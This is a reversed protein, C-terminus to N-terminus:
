WNTKLFPNNSNFSSNNQQNDKLFQQQALLEQIKQEPNEENLFTDFDMDEIEIIEEVDQSNLLEHIESYEQFLAEKQTAEINAQKLIREAEQIDIGNEQAFKQIEDQDTANSIGGINYGANIIFPNIKSIDM